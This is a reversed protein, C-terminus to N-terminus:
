LRNPDCYGCGSVNGFLVTYYDSDTLGCAHLLSGSALDVNPYPDRIKPNKSLIPPVVKRLLSVMTYNPDDPCIDEGLDCLVTARPDEVSLSRM